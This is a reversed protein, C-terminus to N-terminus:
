KVKAPRADPFLLRQGAGGKVGDGNAGGHGAPNLRAELAALYLPELMSKWRAIGPNEAKVATLIAEREAEPLGEWAARLEAERSQARDNEARCPQGDESGDDDALRDHRRFVQSCSGEIALEDPQACAQDTKHNGGDDQDM